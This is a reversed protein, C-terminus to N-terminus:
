DGKIVLIKKYNWQILKCFEKQETYFNNSNSISYLGMYTTSVKGNWNSLRILNDTTKYNYHIKNFLKDTIKM